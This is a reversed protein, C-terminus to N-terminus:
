NCEDIIRWKKIYCSWAVKGSDKHKFLLCYDKCVKDCISRDRKHCLSTDKIEKHSLEYISTSHTRQVTSLIEICVKTNDDDLVIEKNLNIAQKVVNM